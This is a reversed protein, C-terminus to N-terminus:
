KVKCKITIPEKLLSDEVSFLGDSIEIKGIKFTEDTEQLIKADRAKRVYEMFENKYADHQDQLKDNNGTATLNVEKVM